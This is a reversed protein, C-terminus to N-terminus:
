KNTVITIRCVPCSADPKQRKWVGICDKHFYHACNKLVELIDKDTYEISCISCVTDKQRSQLNKIGKFTLLNTHVVRVNQPNQITPIQAYGQRRNNNNHAKFLVQCMCMYGICKLILVSVALFVLHVYLLVLGYLPSVIEYCANTYHCNVGFSVFASVFTALQASGYFCQMTDHFGVLSNPAFMEQLITRIILLLSALNFVNMIITPVGNNYDIIIDNDLEYRSYIVLFVFTVGAYITLIITLLWWLCKPFQM